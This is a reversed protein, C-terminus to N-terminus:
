IKRIKFQSLCETSRDVFRNQNWEYIQCVLPYCRRRDLKLEFYSVFLGKTPRVKLHWIVLISVLWYTGSATICTASERWVTGMPSTLFLVPLGQRRRVANRVRCFRTLFVLLMVLPDHFCACPSAFHKSYKFFFLVLFLCTTPFGFYSFRRSLAYLFRPLFICTLPFRVRSRQLLVCRRASLVRCM